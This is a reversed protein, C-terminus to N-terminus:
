ESIVVRNRGEAKAKYLSKDVRRFLNHFAEDKKLCGLGISISLHLSEMGDVRMAEIESRIEECWIASFNLSQGLLIVVFEEGGWRGVLDQSDVRKRIAHAIKVLVKDGGDHGYTDNIKKFFDIDIIALAVPADIEDAFHKEIYHSLGHRNLLGTLQDLMSLKKYHNTEGELVTNQQILEKLRLQERSHEIRLRILNQAGWIFASLLWFCLIGLYWQEKSVWYGVFELRKLAFQHVGPVTPYNLDIGVATTRTFDPRMEERPAKNNTIWWEAVALEDFRIYLLRNLYETPMIVNMFKDTSTDTSKSIGPVYGRTYIRLRSAPGSYEMELLLDTYGSLDIGEPHAKDTLVMNFGCGHSKGDDEIHCQWKLHEYDTWTAMDEGASNKDSYIYHLTNPAPYIQDRKMPLFRHSFMVLLTILGCLFLQYSRSSRLNEYQSSQSM